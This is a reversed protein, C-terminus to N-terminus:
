PEITGGELKLTWGGREMTQQFDPAHQAASVPATAAHVEDPQDAPEGVVSQWQIFAPNSYAHLFLEFRADDGQMGGLYGYHAALTYRVWRTIGSEAHYYEFYWTGEECPYEVNRYITAPLHPDDTWFWEPTYTWDFSLYVDGKPGVFCSALALTAAAIAFAFTLIKRMTISRTM